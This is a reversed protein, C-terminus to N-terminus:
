MCRTFRCSLSFVKIEKSRERRSKNAMTSQISLTGGRTNTANSEEVDNMMGIIKGTHKRSYQTLSKDDIYLLSGHQLRV